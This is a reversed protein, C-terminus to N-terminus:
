KAKRKVKQIKKFFIIDLPREFKKINSETEKFQSHSLPVNQQSTGSTRTPEQSQQTESKSDEGNIGERQGCAPRPRKM